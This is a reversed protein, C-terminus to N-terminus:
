AVLGWVVCAGFAVVPLVFLALSGLSRRSPSSEGVLHRLRLESASAYSPLGLTVSASGLKLLARALEPRGAGADLAHDDAAIEIAARRRELWRGLIEVRGIVPGIAALVVLRAPAYSLQHHREHILVARLEGADLRDVLDAPCYIRPHVLGAVCPANLDPVLAVEFGVLWGRSATGDLIRALQRHHRVQWMVSAVLLGALIAFVASAIGLLDRMSSVSGGLCAVTETGPACAAASGLGVILCALAVGGTALFALSFMPRM